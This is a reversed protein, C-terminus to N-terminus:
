KLRRYVRHSTYRPDPAPKGICRVALDFLGADNQVEDGLQIIEDKDLMRYNHDWSM